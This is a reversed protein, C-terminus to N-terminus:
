NISTFNVNFPDMQKLKTIIKQKELENEMGILDNADFENTSKGFQEAKKRALLARLKLRIELDSFIDKEIENIDSTSYFGNEVKKM